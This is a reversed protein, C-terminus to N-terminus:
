KNEGASQLWKVDVGSEELGKGILVMEADDKSFLAVGGSTSMNGLKLSGERLRCSHLDLIGDRLELDDFHVDGGVILSDAISVNGGDIVAADFSFEGGEIRLPEFSHMSPGLRFSGGLMEVGNCWINGASFEDVHVVIEGGDITSRSLAISSDEQILSVYMLIEGGSVQSSVFSVSGGDKRPGSIHLSGSKHHIGQLNLDTNTCFDGFMHVESDEFEAYEFGMRGGFLCGTFSADSNKWITQSFDTEGIFLCDNFSVSCESFDIRGFSFDEFVAGTFNFQAGNWSTRSGRWLRDRMAEIVTARVQTESHTASLDMDSASSKALLSEWPRPASHVAKTYPPLPAVPVFPIRLYACLVDICEQRGDEWDDALGALAYIGALRIAPRDSGLQESGRAFRENFLRVQERKAAADLREHDAEGLRQRRYAVVLGIGGAFGLVVGGAIKIADFAGRPSVTDVQVLSPRGVTHWAILLLLAGAVCAVGLTLAVSWGLSLRFLRNEAEAVLENSEPRNTEMAM